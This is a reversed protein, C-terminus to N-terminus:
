RVQGPSLAYYGQHGRVKSEKSEHSGAPLEVKLKIEHWKGDFRGDTPYFGLCYKNRVDEASVVLKDRLEKEGAFRFSLGGSIRAWSEVPAEPLLSKLSEYASQPNIAYIIVGSERLQREFTSSKTKSVSDQWDSILILVRRNSGSLMLQQIAFSCADFLATYGRLQLSDLKGLEALASNAPLRDLLTNTRENFAIISYENSENGAQILQKLSEKLSSYRETLSRQSPRSVSRSVDVLICISAPGGGTFYAVQQLAGNDYIYFNKESLGQIYKDRSNTVAVDIFVLRHQLSDAGSSSAPLTGHATSLLLATLGLILCIVYRVARLHAAIYIGRHSKHVM